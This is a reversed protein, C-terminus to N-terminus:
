ALLPIAWFLGVGVSLVGSMLGIARRSQHSRVLQLSAGAVGSAIAMGLISGVGFLVMYLIRPGTGQLEAFVLATLAGSGALGHVLGIALPRVGQHRDGVHPHDAREGRIGKVIARAGLLLLMAAVALEFGVNASEPLTAGILTLIVGVVVLSITHGVGWWAGLLAGHFPRRTESVLISVASLHDPEFAHRLGIAMGLVIGLASSDM